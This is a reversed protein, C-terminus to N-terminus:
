ARDGAASVHGRVTTSDVSHRSNDAMARAVTTAVAEWIRAESWRRFRQYVTMWKGYERSVPYSRRRALAATM